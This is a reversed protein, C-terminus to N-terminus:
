REGKCLRGRTGGGADLGPPPFWLVWRFFGLPLDTSLFAPSYTPDDHFSFASVSESHERRDFSRFPQASASSLSCSSSFSFPRSLDLLM